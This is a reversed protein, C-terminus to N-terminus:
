RALIRFQLAPEGLTLGFKGLRDCLLGRTGFDKLDNVRREAVERRYEICHEFLRGPQAPGGITLERGIVARGETEDTYMSEPRKNVLLCTLRHRWGKPDSPWPDHASLPNDM